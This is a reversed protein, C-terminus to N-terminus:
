PKGSISKIVSGPSRKKSGPSVEYPTLDGNHDPDWEKVLDPRLIALNNDKGTKRHACEPCNAGKSRSNIQAHWEHGKICKWWVKKNSYPAIRDPTLTGNKISHWEKAVKPYLYALNYNEPVKKPTICQPCDHNSLHEKISESWSHGRACKWKVSKDAFLDPNEHFDQSNEVSDWQDKLSDYQKKMEIM